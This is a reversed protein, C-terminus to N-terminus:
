DQTFVEPAGCKAQLTRVFTKELKLKESRMQFLLERDAAIKATLEAIQQANSKDLLEHCAAQASTSNAQGLGQAYASYIRRIPGDDHFNDMTLSLSVPVGPLAEMLAELCTQMTDNKM